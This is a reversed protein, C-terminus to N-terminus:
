RGGSSRSACTRHAATPWTRSVTPTSSRRRPHAAPDARRAATPGQLAEAIAGSASRGSAPACAARRALEFSSADRADQVAGRGAPARGRAPPRRARRLRPGPPEAIGGLSWGSWPTRCTAASAPHDARDPRMPVTMPLARASPDDGITAWGVVTTADLLCPPRGPRRRGRRGSWRWSSRPTTTRGASRRAVRCPVPRSRYRLKVRTSAGGRAPASRRREVRSRRPASSRRAPGRGRPQTSADKRSCTRAAGDARSARARPAPRGHLPAPRRPAGLVRGRATSSRAAASPRPPRRPPAPVGRPASGPSSASTRARASTPWRCAARRARADRVRPKSLEGLPFASATSRTPPLRALM